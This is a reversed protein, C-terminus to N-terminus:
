VHTLRKRLAKISLALLPMSAFALVTLEPNLYLLYALLFLLTSADRIITIISGSMAGAASQPDNIVKSVAVGPSVYTFLKSDAKLLARMLDHRLQLVVLSTASNMLFTGGFNLTGRIAFLSIVVLPVTWLPYRLGEKFGSDILTKFLAPVLPEIASSLLFFLLAGGLMRWQPRVYSLLRQQTTKLDMPALSPPAPVTEALSNPIRVDGPAHE